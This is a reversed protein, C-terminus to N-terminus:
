VNDANLVERINRLLGKDKKSSWKWERHEDTVEPSVDVNKGGRDKIERQTKIWYSSSIRVEGLM